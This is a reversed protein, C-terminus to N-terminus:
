LLYLKELQKVDVASLLGQNISIDIEITKFNELYDNDIDNNTM